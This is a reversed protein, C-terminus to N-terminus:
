VGIIEKSQIPSRPVEFREEEISAEKNGWEEENGEPKAGNGEGDQASDNKAIIEEENGEAVPAVVEGLYSAATAVQSALEKFGINM